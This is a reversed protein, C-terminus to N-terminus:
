RTVHLVCPRNHWQGRVEVSSFSDFSEGLQKRSLAKGCTVLEQVDNFSERLLYGCSIRSHRRMIIEPNGLGEADRESNTASKRPSIGRHAKGIGSGNRSARRRGQWALSRHAQRQWFDLAGCWSLRAWAFTLTALASLVTRNTSQLCKRERPSLCGRTVVASLAPM